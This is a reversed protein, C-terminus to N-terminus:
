GTQSTRQERGPEPPTLHRGHLWAEYADLAEHLTQGSKCVPELREAKVEYRARLNALNEKLREDDVTLNLGPFDQILKWFWLGFSEVNITKNEGPFLLPLPVRIEKAEDVIGKAMALTYENWVPREGQRLDPNQEWRAEIQDWLAELRHVLRQARKLDRGLYFRHQVYGGNRGPKWGLDRRYQGSADRTLKGKM